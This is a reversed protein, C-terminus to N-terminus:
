TQPNRGGLPSALGLQKVQMKLKINEGFEELIARYMLWKSQSLAKEKQMKARM